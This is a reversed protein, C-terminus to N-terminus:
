LKTLAGLLAKREIQIGKKGNFAVGKDRCRWMSLRIPHYIVTAQKSISLGTMGIV